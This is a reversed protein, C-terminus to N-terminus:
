LRGKSFQERAAQKKRESKRLLVYFAGAGGHHPQATHYAQVDDLEELWHVLYSKLVAPDNINRDGKGPLILVSRIDHAMCDQIFRYLERRAEDITRRHLDLRAETEYKGLRLKRFVGDQIGPRKYGIVDHPGVRKVESTQLRNGDQEEPKQQAALRRAAASAQSVDGKRLEVREKTQLPKVGQMEQLFLQEEPDNNTDSM